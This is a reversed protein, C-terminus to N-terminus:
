QPTSLPYLGTAFSVPLMVSGTESNFFNLVSTASYTYRLIPAREQLWQQQPFVIFIVDESHTNTSMTIWYAIRMRWITVHPSDPDVTNKWM